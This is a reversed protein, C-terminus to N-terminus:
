LSLQWYGVDIWRDFKYGVEPFHAAKFFGLKEHLFVSAENPLSIVGMLVHFKRLKMEAILYKYLATGYGKGFAEKHLYVTTEATFRYAYRERWKSGYAYGLVKGEAELVFWPYDKTINQIRTSMEDVTIEDYEFTIISDTIYHNYIEVMAAADSTKVPRIEFSM